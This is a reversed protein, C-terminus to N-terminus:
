QHPRQRTPPRTCTSTAKTTHGGQSGMSQLGGPEGRDMPNGLCSYHLPNGNGEEPSRGSGSILGLDGANCASGGLAGFWFQKNLNGLGPEKRLFLTIWTRERSRMPNLSTERKQTEKPNGTAQILKTVRSSETRQRIRLCHHHHPPCRM